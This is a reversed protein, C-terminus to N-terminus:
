KSISVPRRKQRASVNMGASERHMRRRLLCRRVPHTHARQRLRWVLERGELWSPASAHRRDLLMRPSWHVDRIPAVEIHELIRTRLNRAATTMPKMCAEDFRLGLHGQVMMGATGLVPRALGIRWVEQLVARRAESDFSWSRFDQLHTPRGGAGPHKCYLIVWRAPNSWHAVDTHFPFCDTGYRSSLTNAKAEARGQPRIDRIPESSRPDTRIEGLSLAFSPLRQWDVGQGLAYGESEVNSRISEIDIGLNSSDAVVREIRRQGLGSM